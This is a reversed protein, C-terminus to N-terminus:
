KFPSFRSRTLVVSGVTGFYVWLGAFYLWPRNRSAFTGRNQEGIDASLPHIRRWLLVLRPELLSRPVLLPQILLM